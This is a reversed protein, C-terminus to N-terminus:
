YTSVNLNIIQYLESITYMHTKVNYKYELLQM